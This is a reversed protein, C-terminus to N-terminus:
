PRVRGSEEGSAAGDSPALTSVFQAIRDVVADVISLLGHGLRPWTVLEAQPLRRVAERLLDIRAFPDSEGSLLLVPCAIRPFHASRVESDPAGPRHLPYSLLVLGAPALDAALLSAVRGGFSHGGIVSGALDVVQERYIQVVAEAKRKPLSVATAALGRGELGDIYPRMTAASGAAGHALYITM